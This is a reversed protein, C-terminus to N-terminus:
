SGCLKEVLIVYNVSHRTFTKCTESDSVRHISYEVGATELLFRLINETASDLSKHQLERIFSPNYTGSIAEDLEAIITLLADILLCTKRDVRARLEDISDIGHADLVTCGSTLPIIIRLM